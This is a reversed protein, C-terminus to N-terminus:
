SRGMNWVQHSQFSFVECRLGEACWREQLEKTRNNDFKRAFFVAM